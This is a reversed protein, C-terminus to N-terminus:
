QKTSRIPDTMGTRKGIIHTGEKSLIHGDDDYSPWYETKNYWWGSSVVEGDKKHVWVFRKTGRTVSASSWGIGLWHARPNEQHVACVGLDEDLLVLQGNPHTCVKKIFCGCGLHCSDGLITEELELAIEEDTVDSRM